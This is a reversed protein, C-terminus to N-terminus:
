SLVGVVEKPLYEKIVDPVKLTNKLWMENKGRVSTILMQIFEGM